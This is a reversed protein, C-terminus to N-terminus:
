PNVKKYGDAFFPDGQWEGRFVGMLNRQGAIYYVEGKKIHVDQACSHRPAKVKIIQNSTMGKIADVVRVRAFVAHKKIVVKEIEIKAVNKQLIADDPLIKLFTQTHLFPGLCAFSQPVNFILFSIFIFVFVKM